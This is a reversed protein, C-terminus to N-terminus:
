STKAWGVAALNGKATYLARAQDTAQAAEAHRGDVHLVTALDLLVDARLNPM